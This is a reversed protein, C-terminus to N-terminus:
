NKNKWDMTNILHMIEKKMFEISPQLSDNNIQTNFYLAGRMFNKSSDTITFQFQSPVEGELEAIVATHGKPTKIIVEDIANAKLQHKATLIYSDSLFERLLKEDQNIEKYTVHINAKLTPYYIEVWYRDRIWSTDKLLEAHKSYEFRYPFTDPLQLYEETPLAIRNYGLSKPLYDRECSCLFPSISLILMLGKILNPANHKL